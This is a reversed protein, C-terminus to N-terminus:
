PDSKGVAERQERHARTLNQNLRSLLQGDIPETWMGRITIYGDEWRGLHKSVPFAKWAHASEALRVIINAARTERAPVIETTGQGLFFCEVVGLPVRLPAGPRLNVLLNDNARALRPQRTASVIVAFVALSAGALVGGVTLAAWHTVCFCLAGGGIALLLPPLTALWLIRRNPRLWVENVQKGDWEGCM